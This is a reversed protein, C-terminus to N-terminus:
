LRGRYHNKTLVKNRYKKNSDYRIFSDKLQILDLPYIPSLYPYGFCDTRILSIILYFLGILIGLLGFLSSLFLFLLKYFRAVQIFEISSFVFSAISSIAIVIIMIPSVIGAAVAADGLISGGM